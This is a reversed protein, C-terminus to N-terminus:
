AIGAQTLRKGTRGATATRPRHREVVSALLGLTIWFFGLGTTVYMRSFNNTVHYAAVILWVVLVFDRGVLGDRPLHPLAAKTRMLWLVVPGVFLLFGTIGQEALTTLYLNHSAHPKAPGVLDGVQGQFPRSYLDFNQYGWGVAPERDFMRIAAQAAPLRSLASEESQASTLRYEALDFQRTLVGSAWVLVLVPVVFQAVQGLHRRYVLLAGTTALLGALWSARSFSLFIMLM